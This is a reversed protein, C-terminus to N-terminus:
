KQPISKKPNIIRVLTEDRDIFHHKLTASVHLLFLIVLVHTAVEHVEGSIEANTENLSFIAPIEFGGFVEIGSGKATSIFYGSFCTILLFLYFLLHTIKAAKIEWRKYSALPPPLKDILRWSLRILLLLFVVIGVSKHWWPASNYWADYYDLDVMYKGLFFLGIVLVAMIWHLLIVTIGYNKNTEPDTM